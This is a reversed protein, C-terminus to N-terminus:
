LSIVIKGFHKGQELHRFADAAKEIPFTSDVVPKLKHLVIARNMAEFRARSGVAIGQIRIMPGIISRLPIEAKMGAVFGVIGIFGGFAVAALSKEMTAGATEVIIDVGRGGTAEKVAVGWDPTTRYNIGIDAGLRKARVLKEDSSSLVIVRAGMIKAFQLAFLAVGGTGQVLVTDGAKIGGEQLTSWATLAAIPLTAAEGDSLNSPISVADEAPVVVYDQLVGSLPAGLTRKTRQEPTPYGDHWGQTYIPTVRDGIKFRIVEEGVEVVEGGCDSAPVYPLPLAAMYKQTLIALDRYNLSAAKIRVLIEGRRPKPVPREVLNLGNISFDKAEMARMSSKQNM